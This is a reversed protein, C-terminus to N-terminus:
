PHSLQGAGGRRRIREQARETARAERRTRRRERRLSRATSSPASIVGNRQSWVQRTVWVDLVGWTAAITSAVSSLVMPFALWSGALTCLIAVMAQMLTVAIILVARVAATRVPDPLRRKRAPEEIWLPRYHVREEDGRASIGRVEVAVSKGTLLGREPERASRAAVEPTAAGDGPAARREATGM